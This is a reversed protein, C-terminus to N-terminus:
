RRISPSAGRRHVPRRGRRRMDLAVTVIELGQPICSPACRRGCPCTSAAAEGRPGRSSCCRRGACRRSRSRTATGTPCCSTPRRPADDARPRGVRARAGLARADRRPRAADRAARRATASRSAEAPKEAGEALPSACGGKCAGEPRIAWGTRRELEDPSVDLSDLIMARAVTGSDPLVKRWRGGGAAASASTEALARLGTFFVVLMTGYLDDPVAEPELLKELAVGNAMAFTM